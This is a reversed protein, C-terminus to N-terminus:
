GARGCCGPGRSRPNGTGPLDCHVSMVPDTVTATGSLAVSVADRVRRRAANAPTLLVAMGPRHRLCSEPLHCSDVVTAWTTFIANAAALIAMVITVVLLVTSIRGRMPDPPGTFPGALAADLGTTAHYNFM